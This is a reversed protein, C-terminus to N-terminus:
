GAFSRPRTPRPRPSSGRGISGSCSSLPRDADKAVGSREGAPLAPREVQLYSWHGKWKAGQDIWRRLTEIEAPKLRPGAEKPPMLEDEDTSTIRAILKSHSSDGPVIALGGSELEALADRRSGAAPGSAAQGPRPRPLRLLPEVPDAPHRPQLRDSRAAANPPRPPLLLVGLSRVCWLWPWLLKRNMTPPSLADSAPKTLSSRPLHRLHWRNCCM